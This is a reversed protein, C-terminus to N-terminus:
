MWRLNMIIIFIRTLILTIIIFMIIFKVEIAKSLQIRNINMVTRVTKKFDIALCISFMTRHRGVRPLRRLSLSAEAVKAKVVRNQHITLQIIPSSMCNLQTQTKRSRLSTTSEMEILIIRIRLFKRIRGLSITLSAM